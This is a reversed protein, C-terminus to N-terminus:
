FICQAGAPCYNSCTNPTIYEDEVNGIVELGEEDVYIPTVSIKKIKSANIFIFKLSFNGTQNEPM